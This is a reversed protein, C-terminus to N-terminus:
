LWIYEQLQDLEPQDEATINGIGVDQKMHEESTTGSIPTIGLSQAFFYTAQAPTLSKRKALSLLAPHAM